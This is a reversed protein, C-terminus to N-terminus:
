HYAIPNKDLKEKLSIAMSMKHTLDQMVPVLYTCDTVIIM